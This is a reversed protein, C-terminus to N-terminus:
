EATETMTFSYRQTATTSALPIVWHSDKGRGNALTTPLTTCDGVNLTKYDDTTPAVTGTEDYNGVLLTGSTGEHCIEVQAVWGPITELEWDTTSALGTPRVIEWPSTGTITAALSDVVPRAVVLLVALILPAWRALFTRM